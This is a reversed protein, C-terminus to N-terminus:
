GRWSPSPQGGQTIGKIESLRGQSDVESIYIFAVIIKRVFHYLRKSTDVKLTNLGSNQPFSIM